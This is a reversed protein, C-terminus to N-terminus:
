LPTQLGSPGGFTRWTFNLKILDKHLNTLIYGSNLKQESKNTFFTNLILIKSSETMAIQIKTHLKLRGFM